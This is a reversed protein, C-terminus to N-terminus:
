YVCAYIAASKRGQAERSGSPVEINALLYTIDTPLFTKRPSGLPDICDVIKDAILRYIVAYRFRERGTEVLIPFQSKFTRSDLASWSSVLMDDHQLEQFSDTGRTRVDISNSTPAPRNTTSAEPPHLSYFNDVHAELLHKIVAVKDVIVSDKAPQPLYHKLDFTEPKTSPKAEMARPTKGWFM